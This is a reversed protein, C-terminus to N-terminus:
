RGVYRALLELQLFFLILGSNAAWFVTLVRALTGWFPDVAASCRWIAILVWATYLGFAILLFQQLVIEDRYVSSGFAAIILLSFLAGHLWFVSSLPGEGRWARIEPAFFLRLIAMTRPASRSRREVQSEGRRSGVIEIRM